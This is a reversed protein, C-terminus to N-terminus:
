GSTGGEGAQLCLLRFVLERISVCTAARVRWGGCETSWSASSGDKEFSLCRSSILSFSSPVSLPAYVGCRVGCGCEGRPVSLARASESRLHTAFVSTSGSFMHLGSRSAWGMLVNDKRPRHVASFSFNHVLSQHCIARVLTCVGPDRSSMRNLIHFDASNDVVFLMHVRSSLVMSSWRLWRHSANGGNSLRVAPRLRRM